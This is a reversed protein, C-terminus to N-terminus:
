LLRALTIAVLVFFVILTRTIVYKIVLQQRVENDIFVSKIAFAVAMEFSAFVVAAIIWLDRVVACYVFLFATFLMAACLMPILVHLKKVVDVKTVFNFMTLLIALIVLLPLVSGLLGILLCVM